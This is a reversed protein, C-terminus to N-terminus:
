LVLISTNSQLFPLPYCTQRQHYSIFYYEPLSTQKLSDLDPMHGMEIRLLFGLIERWSTLM